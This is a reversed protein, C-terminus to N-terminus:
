QVKILDSSSTIKIFNDGEKKRMYVIGNRTWLFKYNKSVKIAAATKFLQRTNYSLSENIYMKEELARNSCVSTKLKHKKEHNAKLIKEKLYRSVLKVHLIKNTNKAAAVTEAAAATTTAEATTANCNPSGDDSAKSRHITKIYCHDIDAETININLGDRFIKLAIDTSSSETNDCPVNVIDICNALLQQELNNVRRELAKINAECEKNKTTLANLHNQQFNEIAIVKAYVMELTIKTTTTLDKQRLSTTTNSSTPTTASSSTQNLPLSAPPPLSTQSALDALSCSAPNRRKSQCVNCQWPSKNKKMNELDLAQLNVCKAHFYKNCDTCKIKLEGREVKLKCAECSM